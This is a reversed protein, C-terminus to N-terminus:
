VIYLRPGVIFGLEYSSAQDAPRRAVRLLAQIGACSRGGRIRQL